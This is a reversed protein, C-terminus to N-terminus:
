GRSGGKIGPVELVHMLTVVDQSSLDIGARKLSEIDTVDGQEMKVGTEALNTKNAEEVETEEYNVSSISEPSVGMKLFEATDKGQGDGILCIKTDSVIPKEYIKRTKSIEYKIAPSM